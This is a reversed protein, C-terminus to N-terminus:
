HSTQVSRDQNALKDAFYKGELVLDYAELNPEYHSFPVVAASMAVKLAQVVTGTIEDQVKFVDKLDRDYTQSWIHTGDAARILQVTVRMTHDSKRVSGEILNAVGLTGAITRVDENKGKFQFSSTRAIVRLDQSRALREILEESLGDSFYEQDKKESMDVFPLVAISKELITSQTPAIPQAAAGSATVTVRKSMVFKDVTYYGGAIVAAAAVLLLAAWTRWPAKAPLAAHALTPAVHAGPLILQSVRQVFARPTEGGPLRTWHLERFREPVQEDEGLTDDIVIPLLFAKHTTMLHSRDIALKWELRFYGEERAHTNRSIVPIFLACTKIQKRISADWADGGRLESQDFWVEIGAARLGECIRRTAEADQSAYSL